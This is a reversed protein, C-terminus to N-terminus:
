GDWGVGGWGMGDWVIGEWGVGDWGVGDWGVGGLGMGDLGLDAEKSPETIHHIHVLGCDLVGKGVVYQVLHREDIREEEERADQAGVVDDAVEGDALQALLM